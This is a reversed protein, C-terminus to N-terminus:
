LEQLQYLGVKFYLLENGTIPTDTVKISIANPNYQQWVGVREIAYSRFGLEFMWTLWAKQGNNFAPQKMPVRIVPKNYDGM